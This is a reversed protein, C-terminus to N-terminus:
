YSVPRAPQTAPFCEMEMVTAIKVIRWGSRGQKATKAMITWVPFPNLADWRQVDELSDMRASANIATVKPFSHSGKKTCKARSIWVALNHVVKKPVHTLVGM